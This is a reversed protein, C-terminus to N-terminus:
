SDPQTQMRSSPFGPLSGLACSFGELTQTASLYGSVTIKYFRMGTVVPFVSSGGTRKGITFWHRMDRSGYIIINIKSQDFDGRLFVNRLLKLEGAKTMKIPRSKLIFEGDNGKLVVESIAKDSVNTDNLGSYKLGKRSSGNEMRIGESSLIESWEAFRHAQELPVSAFPFFNLDQYAGSDNEWNWAGTTNAKWALKFTESCIRKETVEGSSPDLTVCYSDSSLHRMPIFASFSDYKQLSESVLIELSSIRTVYDRIAEPIKLRFYLNGLAAAIKFELEPTKIDGDTAVLPVMSNPIMLVPLTPSIYEGEITKWAAMVYFPAVFLSQMRAESQFQSLLQSAMGTWYEMTPDSAVITKSPYLDPHIHWGKLTGRVLGFSIEAAPPLSGGVASADSLMSSPLPTGTASRLGSVSYIEGDRSIFDGLSSPLRFPIDFIKEDM